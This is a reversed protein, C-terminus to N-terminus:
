HRDFGDRLLVRAANATRRSSRRLACQRHSPACTLVEDTALSGSSFPSTMRPKQTRPSSPSVALGESRVALPALTRGEVERLRKRFGSQPCRDPLPRLSYWRSSRLCIHCCHPCTGSTQCETSLQPIAIPNDNHRHMNSCTLWAEDSRRTFIPNRTVPWGVKLRSVYPPTAM